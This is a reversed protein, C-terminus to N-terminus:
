IPWGRTNKNRSRTKGHSSLSQLPPCIISLLAAITLLLYITTAILTAAVVEIMRAKSLLGVGLFYHEGCSGYEYHAIHLSATEYYEAIM